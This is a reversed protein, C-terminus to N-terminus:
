DKTCMLCIRIQFYAALTALLSWCHGINPWPRLHFLSSLVEKGMAWKTVMHDSCTSSVRHACALFAVTDFVSIVGVVLVVCVFGWTWPPNQHSLLLYFCFLWVRPIYFVCTYCYRTDPIQIERLGLAKLLLLLSTQRLAELCPTTCYVCCQSICVFVRLFDLTVCTTVEFSEFFVCCM